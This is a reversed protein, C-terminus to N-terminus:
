SKNEGRPRSLARISARSPFPLNVRGHRSQPRARRRQPCRSRDLILPSGVPVGPWFIGRQYRSSLSICGLDRKEQAASRSFQPPNPARSEGGRSISQPSCPFLISGKLHIRPDERQTQCGPPAPITVGRTPPASPCRRAREVGLGAEAM